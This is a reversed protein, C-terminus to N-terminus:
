RNVARLLAGTMCAVLGITYYQELCMTIVRGLLKQRDQRTGIARDDLLDDWIQHLQVLLREPAIRRERAEKGASRLANKLEGDVSGTALHARLAHRLAAVVEPSLEAAPDSSPM